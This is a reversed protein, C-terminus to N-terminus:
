ELEKLNSLIHELSQRLVTRDGDSIGSYIHPTIANFKDLVVQNKAKGFQSPYVRTIRQDRKGPLREILKARAMRKLLNSMTAPRIMLKEALEAQTLGEGQCLTTLVRAQGRPIDLEALMTEVRAHFARSVQSLLDTETIESSLNLDETM